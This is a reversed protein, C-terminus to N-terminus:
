LLVGEEERGLAPFFYGLMGRNWIGDRLLESLQRYVFELEVYVRSSGRDHIHFTVRRFICANRTLVM